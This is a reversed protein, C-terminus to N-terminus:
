LSFETQRAFAPIVPAGANFAFRWTVNGNMKYGLRVVGLAGDTFLVCIRGGDKVQSLITAPLEEVAGEILIADYPGHASAGDELAGHLIAVNDIGESSLITQAENARTEDDEVAVGAEAIRACVAASYGFGAGICLVLDDNALELADLMKALTRPEVMSRGEGLDICDDVYALDRKDDPVFAERRVTLMADIVTFKTVDSPRIQTDVMTTRRVSFDTMLDPQGAQNHLKNVVRLAVSLWLRCRASELWTEPCLWKAVFQYSGVKIVM